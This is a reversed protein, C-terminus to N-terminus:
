FIQLIDMALTRGPMQQCQAKISIKVIADFGLAEFKEVAKNALSDGSVGLSRSSDLAITLVPRLSQERETSIPPACLAYVM